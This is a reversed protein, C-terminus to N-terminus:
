PCLAADGASYECGDAAVSNCNRWGPACDWICEPGADRAQDRCLPVANPLATTCANGCAGCNAEDRATDVCRGACRMEEPGCSSVAADAAGSDIGADAQTVDPQSADPADAAEDVPTPRDDPADPPADPWIGDLGGDGDTLLGSDVPRPHERAPLREASCAALTLAFSLAVRTM